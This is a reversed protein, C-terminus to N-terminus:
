KGQHKKKLRKGDFRMTAKKAEITFPTGKDNLEIVDEKFHIEFGDKTATLTMIESACQVETMGARQFVYDFEGLFRLRNKELSFIATGYAYDESELDAFLLTKFKSIDNRRFKLAITETFDFRRTMDLIDFKTSNSDLLFIRIGADEDPGNKTYRGAYLFRNEGLTYLPTFPTIGLGNTNLACTDFDIKIYPQCFNSPECSVKNTLFLTVFCVIILHLEISKLLSM